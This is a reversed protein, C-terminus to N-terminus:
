RTMLAAAIATVIYLGFLVWWGVIIIRRSPPFWAALIMGALAMLGLVAAFIGALEAPTSGPSMWRAISSIVSCVVAAAAVVGLLEGLTFQDGQADRPEGPEAARPPLFTAAPPPSDDPTLQYEDTVQDESPPQGSPETM